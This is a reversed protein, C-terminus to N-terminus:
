WQFENAFGEVLKKGGVFMRNSPLIEALAPM